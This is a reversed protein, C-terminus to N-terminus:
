DEKKNFNQIDKIEEFGISDCYFWRDMDNNRVRVIDSVSLSHSKFDLPKNQNFIFFIHELFKWINDRNDQTEYEYVKDYCNFELNKDIRSLSKFKNLCMGTNEKERMYISECNKNNCDKIQYIEVIVENKMSKIFEEEKGQNELYLYEEEMNRYSENM